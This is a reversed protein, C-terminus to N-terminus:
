KQQKKAAEIEILNLGIVKRPTGTIAEIPQYIDKDLDNSKTLKDYLRFSHDYLYFYSQLKKGSQIASNNIRLFFLGSQGKSLMGWLSARRSGTPFIAGDTIIEIITDKIDGKFIKSIKITASTFLNKPTSFLNTGIVQGEVIADSKNVRDGFSMNVPSQIKESLPINDKYNEPSFLNIEAQEFPLLAIVKKPTGTIAEIPHYLYGEFDDINKGEFGASHLTLQPFASYYIYSNFYLLFYHEINKGSQITSNNIRLFFLGEYGKGIFSGM